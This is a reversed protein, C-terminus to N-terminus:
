ESLTDSNLVIQCRCLPSRNPVTPLIITSMTAIAIINRQMLPMMSKMMGYEIFLLRFDLKFDFVPNNFHFKLHCSVM